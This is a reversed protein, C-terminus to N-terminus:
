PSEQAAADTASNSGAPLESDVAASEGLPVAIVPPARFPTTSSALGTLGRITLDVVFERQGSLRLQRGTTRGSVSFRVRESQGSEVASFTVGEPLRDMRLVVSGSGPVPTESGQLGASGAAAVSGAGAPNVDTAAAPDTVPATATAAGAAADASVTLPISAPDREIWWQQGGPEFRFWVPAGERIALARTKALAAQVQKAGANLRSKDLLGRVSPQVLAALAALIALVILLEALSYGRRM